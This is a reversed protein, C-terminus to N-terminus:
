VNLIVLCSANEGSTFAILYFRSLMPFEGLTLLVAYTDKAFTFQKKKNLNLDGHTEASFAIVDNYFSPFNSASQASKSTEEVIPVEDSKKIPSSKFSSKKKRKQIKARRHNQWNERRQYNFGFRMFCWM